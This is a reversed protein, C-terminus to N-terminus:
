RDLERPAERDREIIFFTPFVQAGAIETYAKGLYLDENDPDVQKVYDRLFSGEFLGNGGDAYDLLVSDSEKAKDVSSSDKIKYFGFRKPDTDSPRCTWPRELGGQEVPINYGWPEDNKRYFGKKFKQFGAVKTIFPKNFGRFEWGVLKEPDPKTGKQFVDELESVSLAALDELHRAM